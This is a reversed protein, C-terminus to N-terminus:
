RLLRARERRLRTRLVRLVAYPLVTMVLVVVVGLCVLVELHHGACTSHWGLRDLPEVLSVPPPVSWFCQWWSPVM